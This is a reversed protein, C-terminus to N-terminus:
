DQLVLLKRCIVLAAASMLSKTKGNLWNAVSTQTQKVGAIEALKSQTLNYNQTVWRIRESQTSM